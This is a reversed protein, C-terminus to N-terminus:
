APRSLYEARCAVARRNEARLDQIFRAVRAADHKLCMAVAFGLAITYAEPTPHREEDGDEYDIIGHPIADGDLHMYLDVVEEDDQIWAEAADVDRAIEMTKNVGEHGTHQKM